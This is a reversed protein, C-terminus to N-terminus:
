RDGITGDWVHATTERASVQCGWREHGLADCYLAGRVRCSNDLKSGTAPYGGGVSISCHFPGVESVRCYGGGCWLADKRRQVSDTEQVRFGGCQLLHCLM